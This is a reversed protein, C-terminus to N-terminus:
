VHFSSESFWRSGEKFNISHKHHHQVYFIVSVFERSKLSSSIPEENDPIFSPTASPFSSRRASVDCDTHQITHVTACSPGM